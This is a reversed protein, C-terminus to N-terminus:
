RRAVEYAKSIAELILDYTVEISNTGLVYDCGEVRINGDDFTIPTRKSAELIQSFLIGKDVYNELLM